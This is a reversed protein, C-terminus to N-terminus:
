RRTLIRFSATARAAVTGDPAALEAEVEASREDRSVITVTAILPGVPAPKIFRTSLQTTVATRDEPLSDMLTSGMASDLMAALLGGQVTGHRNAFAPQALFEVVTSRGEAALGVLRRGLLIAAPPLTPHPSRLSGTM